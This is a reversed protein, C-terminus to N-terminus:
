SVPKGGQAAQMNNRSCAPACTDHEPVPDYGSGGWPHCRCIRKIGLWLGRAPGFRKIADLCYQSCGPEYRCGCGPGGIVRLVPKLTWRYMHILFVLVKTMALRVFYFAARRSAVM